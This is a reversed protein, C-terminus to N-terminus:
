AIIINLTHGGVVLKLAMMRYNIRQIDIVQERLDGDVLIGISNKNKLSGSFWLKFEAM